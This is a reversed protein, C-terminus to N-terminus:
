CTLQLSILTVTSSKTFGGDMLAGIACCGKTSPGKARCNKVCCHHHISRSYAKLPKWNNKNSQGKVLEFIKCMVWESLVKVNTWKSVRCRVNAVQVKVSAAQLKLCKESLTAMLWKFVRCKVNAAQVKVSAVQLMKWEYIFNKSQWPAHYLFVKSDLCMPPFCFFVFHFKPFCRFWHM